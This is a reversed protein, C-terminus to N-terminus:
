THARPRIENRRRVHALEFRQHLCWERCSGYSRWWPSFSSWPRHSWSSRHSTSHQPCPSHWHCCSPRTGHRTASCSRGGARCTLALSEARWYEWQCMVTAFLVYVPVVLLLSGFKASVGAIQSAVVVALTAVMLPVMAGMVVREIGRHVGNHQPPSQGCPSSQAGARRRITRCAARM